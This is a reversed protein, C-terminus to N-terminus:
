EVNYTLNMIEDYVDPHLKAFDIFPSLTNLTNDDIDLEIDYKSVNAWAQGIGPMAEIMDNIFINATSQALLEGKLLTQLEPTLVEGESAMGSQVFKKLDQTSFSYAGVHTIRNQNGLKILDGITTTALDKGILETGTSLGNGSYPTQIVDYPNNPNSNYIDKPITSQIIANSNEPTDSFTNITKATSPRDTLNKRRGQPVVQILQEHGKFELKKGTEAQIIAAAIEAETRTPDLRDLLGLFFPKQSRQNNTYDVLEQLHTESLFNTREISSLDDLMQKRYVGTMGLGTKGGYEWGSGAGKIEQGLFNKNRAYIGEHEKILKVEETVMDRLTAIPSQGLGKTMLEHHLNDQVREIAISIMASTESSVNDTDVGEQGGVAKLAGILRQKQLKMQESSIGSPGDITLKSWKQMLEPPYKQLDMMTLTGAKYKGMLAAEAEQIEITQQNYLSKFVSNSADIDAQSVGGAKLQALERDKEAKNPLRGETLKIQLLRQASENLKSKVNENYLIENRAAYQGAAKYAADLHKKHAIGYVKGKNPGEPIVFRKLKDIDYASIQGKDALHTLVKSVTAHNTAYDPTSKIYNWIGQAFNQNPEAAIHREVGEWQENLAYEKRNSALRVQDTAKEQSIFKDLQPQAYTAIFENSFKGHYRESLYDQTIRDRLVNAEVGARDNPDSEFDALTKGDISFKKNVKAENFFRPFNNELDRSVALAQVSVKTYGKLQQLQGWEIDTVDYREQAAAIGFDRNQLDELLPILTNKREPSFQTWIEYAKKQANKKRVEDFEGYAEMAGVAKPILAALKNVIKNEHKLATNKALVAQDAIAQKYHQMEAEHYADDFSKKLKFNSERQRAEKENKGRLYQLVEQRNQSHQNQVERMGRLTRETEQQLKLTQDPVRLPDFGKKRERAYGSFTLNKM